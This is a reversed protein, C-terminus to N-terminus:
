YWSYILDTLYYELEQKKYKKGTENAKELAKEVEDKTFIADQYRETDGDYEVIVYLDKVLLM